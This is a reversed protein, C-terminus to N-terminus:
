FNLKFGSSYSFTDVFSNYKSGIPRYLESGIFLCFHKNVMYELKVGGGIYEYRGMGYDVTGILSRISLDLNTIINKTYDLSFIVRPQTNYSVYSVYLTPYIICDYSISTYPEFYNNSQSYFYYYWSGVDISWKDSLTYTSGFGFDSEQYTNLSQYQSYKLYPTLKNIKYQITNETVFVDKAIHQADCLYNKTFYSSNEFEIAIVNLTTLLLFLIRRM